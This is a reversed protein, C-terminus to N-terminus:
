LHFSVKSFLCYGGPWAQAFVLYNWKISNSSNSIQSPQERFPNVYLHGYIWDIMFAFNGRLQVM